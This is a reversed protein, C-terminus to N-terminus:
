GLRLAAVSRVIGAFSRPDWGTLEEWRDLRYAVTNAHVELRRGAESVSFGAEAFTRVADALHPHEAAVSTGRELLPDLRPGLDALTAWLWLEDFLGTESGDLVALVREADEISQRAGDLGRRVTGMGITADPVVQRCAADIRAAHDARPAM